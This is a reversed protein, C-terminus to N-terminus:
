PQSELEEDEPTREAKPYMVQNALEQAADDPLNAKKAKELTIAAQEAVSNLVQDLKGEKELQRVLKPNNRRWSTEAQARLVSVDRKPQMQIVSM